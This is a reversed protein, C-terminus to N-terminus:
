DGAGGALQQEANSLGLAVKCLAFLSSGRHAVIIM